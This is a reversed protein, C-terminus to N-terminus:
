AAIPILQRLTAHHAALIASIARRGHSTVHYRHAGPVKRILGHARLLRLKRGVWASRRRQERPDTAPQTFFLQQLHSNRFGNLTFEGRNVAELWARDETSFPHLARVRQGKWRRPQELRRTLEELTTDDDVQALATLYRDNIKQCVQGRRHLDALGRRLVRWAKPGQPDGEKRRYVWFEEAHNLTVEARLVSGQPTYAKDYLKVSNQNVQHRIRIGEQREKLDSIVEGQFRKPVGGTRPVARGLFRLVDRSGFSTLSHHILRPYLRRLTARERFVLDTAWESERASWYYSLPCNEFVQAHGPHWQEVLERLVTPWNVRLQADLLQQAHAFDEVWPFCNGQRRYALGVTDMQRALWERGNLCVQMSFPFWTQLRVHMFGFVPHILYHYLHLCKRQEGVLELRKAERNRRVTFSWCPEVCSLVSVLGSTIRDRAAIARAVDEKRVQSSALYVVSRGLQAARAQSAAKLRESVAQVHDGFDKLLISAGSLYRMMGEAYCIARLSGRILLRDFGSLVGHLHDSFKAIFENM